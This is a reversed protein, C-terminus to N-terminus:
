LGIGAQASSPGAWGWSTKKRERQAERISFIHSSVKGHIIYSMDLCNHLEEYNIDDDNENENHEDYCVDAIKAIIAWTEQQTPRCLINVIQYLIGWYRGAVGARHINM